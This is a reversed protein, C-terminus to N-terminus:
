FLPHVTVFLALCIAYFTAFAVLLASHRNGGSVSAQGSAGSAAGGGGGGSAASVHGAADPDARSDTCGLLMSGGLFLLALTAVDRM